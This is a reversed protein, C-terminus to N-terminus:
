GVPVGDDAPEMLEVPEAVDDPVSARTHRAVWLARGAVGAVPIIQLSTFCVACM